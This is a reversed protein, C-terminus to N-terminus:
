KTRVTQYSERDGWNFVIRYDRWCKDNKIDKIVLYRMYGSISQTKEDASEKIKEHQEPTAYVMIPKRNVM